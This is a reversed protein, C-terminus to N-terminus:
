QFLEFPQQAQVLWRQHNADTLSSASAGQRQFAHGDVDVICVNGVIRARLRQINRDYPAARRSVEAGQRDLGHQDRQMACANRRLDRFGSAGKDAVMNKIAQHVLHRFFGYRSAFPEGSATKNMHRKKGTCPTGDISSFSM